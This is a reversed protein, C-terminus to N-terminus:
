GHGQLYADLADRIVQSESTADSEARQRIKEKYSPPARFSLVEATAEGLRPARRRTKLISEAESPALERNEFEHAMREIEMDTLIRGNKTTRSM